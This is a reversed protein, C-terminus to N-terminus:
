SGWWDVFFLSEWGYNQAVWDSWYDSEPLTEDTAAGPTLTLTVIEAIGAVEITIGTGSVGGPTLTVAVVEAAGPAETIVQSGEAAGPTLDLTLALDAGSANANLPAFFSLGIQLDAGAVGIMPPAYFSVGIRLDAGAAFRLDAVQSILSVSVDHVLTCSGVDGAPRDVVEPPESYRWLFGSSIYDGPSFGSLLSNPVDFALFGSDQGDYHDVILDKDATSLAAFTLEMQQDRPSNCLLSYGYRGNMSNHQQVQFQAPTIARTAPTLAPFTAM